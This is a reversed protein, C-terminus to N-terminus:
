LCNVLIFLKTISTNIIDSKAKCKTHDILKRIFIFWQLFLLKFFSSNRLSRLSVKHINIIM